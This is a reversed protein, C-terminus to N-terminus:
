VSEEATDELIAAAARRVITAGHERVEPTIDADALRPDRALGLRLWASLEAPQQALWIALCAVGDRLVTHELADDDTYPGEHIALDRNALATVFASEGFREKLEIVRPARIERVFAMAHCIMGCYQVLSDGVDPSLLFLALDDEDPVPLMDPPTLGHQQILRQALRQQFRPHGALSQQTAEDAMDGLCDCLWRLAICRTPAAVFAQWKDDSASKELSAGANM